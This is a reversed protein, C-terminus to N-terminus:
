QARIIVIKILKHLRRLPPASYPAISYISSSTASKTAYKGYGVAECSFQIFGFELVTKQRNPGLPLVFTRNSDVPLQGQALFEETTCASVRKAYEVGDGGAHIVQFIRLLRLFATSGADVGIWLEYKPFKRDPHEHCFIRSQVTHFIQICVMKERRYGLICLYPNIYGLAKRAQDPAAAIVMEEFLSDPQIYDTGNARCVLPNYLLKSNVRAITDSLTMWEPCHPYLMHQRNKMHKAIHQMFLSTGDDTEEDCMQLTIREVSSASITSFEIQFSNKMPSLACPTLPQAIKSINYQKEARKAGEDRLTQCIDLTLILQAKQVSDSFYWTTLPNSADRPELDRSGILGISM